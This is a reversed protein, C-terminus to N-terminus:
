EGARHGRDVATTDHERAALWRHERHEQLSVRGAGVGLLRLCAGSLAKNLRVIGATEGRGSAPTLAPAMSGNPLDPKRIVQRLSCGTNGAVDEESGDGSDDGAPGIGRSVPLPIGMTPM